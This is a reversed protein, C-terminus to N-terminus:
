VSRQIIHSVIRKHSDIYFHQVVLWLDLYFLGLQVIEVL